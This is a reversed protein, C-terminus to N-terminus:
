HINTQHSYFESGYSYSMGTLDFSMVTDEESNCIYETEVTELANTVIISDQLTKEGGNDNCLQCKLLMM